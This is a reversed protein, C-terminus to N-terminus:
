WMTVLQSWMEKFLYYNYHLVNFDNFYGLHTSTSYLGLWNYNSGWHGSGELHISHGELLSLLSWYERISGDLMRAWTDYIPFLEIKFINQFYKISPM